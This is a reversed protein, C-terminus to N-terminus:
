TYVLSIDNYTLFRELHLVKKYIRLTNLTHTSAQAKSSSTRPLPFERPKLLSSTFPPQEIPTPAPQFAGQCKPVQSTSSLFVQLKCLTKANPTPSPLSTLPELYTLTCTEKTRTFHKFPKHTCSDKVCAIQLPHRKTVQLNHLNVTITFSHLGVWGFSKTTQSFPIIFNPVEEFNTKTM